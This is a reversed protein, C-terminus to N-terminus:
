LISLNVYHVDEFSAGFYKENENEESPKILHFYINKNRMM